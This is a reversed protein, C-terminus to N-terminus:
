GRWEAQPMGPIIKVMRLWVFSNSVGMKTIERMTKCKLKLGTESKVMVKWKKFNEFVDSKFAKLLLGM